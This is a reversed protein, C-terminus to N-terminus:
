IKARVVLRTRENDHCTILTLEHKNTPMLWSDDSPDVVRMDFVFYELEQTATIVIIRSGIKLNKLNEFAGPTHGVIVTRAWSTDNWITGELRAVGYGLSTLDYTKNEIEAYEINKYLSIDPIILYDTEPSVAFVPLCQVFLVLIIIILKKM